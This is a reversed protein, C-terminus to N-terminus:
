KKRLAAAGVVMVVTKSKFVKSLMKSVATIM